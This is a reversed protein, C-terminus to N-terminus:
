IKYTEESCRIPLVGGLLKGKADYVKVIDIQGKIEIKHYDFLGLKDGNVIVRNDLRDESTHKILINFKNKRYTPLYCAVKGETYEDANICESFIDKDLALFMKENLVMKNRDQIFFFYGDCLVIENENLVHKLIKGGNKHLSLFHKIMNQKM